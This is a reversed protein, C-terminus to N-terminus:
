IQDLVKQSVSNTKEYHSNQQYIRGGRPGSIDPVVKILGKKVLKSLQSSVSANLLHMKYADGEQYSSLIRCIEACTVRLFPITFLDVIKQIQTM